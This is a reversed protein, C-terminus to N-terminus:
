MFIIFLPNNSDLTEVTKVVKAEEASGVLCATGEPRYTEVDGSACAHMM